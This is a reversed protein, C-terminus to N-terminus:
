RWLAYLKPIGTIQELVSTKQSGLNISRVTQNQLFSEAAIAITKNLSQNHKVGYRVLDVHLQPPIRVNFSGKCTTNPQRGLNKCDNLYEQISREFSEELEELNEGEYFISDEIFLVKGYFMHEEQSYEISGEYGAASHLILKNNM